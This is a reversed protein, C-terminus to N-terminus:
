LLKILNKNIEPYFFGPWEKAPNEDTRGQDQVVFMRNTCGQAVCAIRAQEERDRTGKATCM